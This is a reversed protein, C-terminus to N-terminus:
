DIYSIVDFGVASRVLLFSCSVFNFCRFSLRFIGVKWWQRIRNGWWLSGFCYCGWIRSVFRADNTVMNFALSIRFPKLDLGWLYSVPQQFSHIEILVLNMDSEYKQLFSPVYPCFVNHVVIVAHVLIDPLKGTLFKYFHTFKTSSTFYWFCKWRHVNEGAITLKTILPPFQIQPLLPIDRIASAM